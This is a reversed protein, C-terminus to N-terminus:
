PKKMHSKKAENAEDLKMTRYFETARKACFNKFNALYALEKGKSSEENQEQDKDNSIQSLIKDIFDYYEDDKNEDKTASNLM